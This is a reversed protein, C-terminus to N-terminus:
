KKMEILLESLISIKSKRTELEARTVLNKLENFNPLVFLKPLVLKKFYKNESDFSIEVDKSVIDTNLLGSSRKEDFIFM